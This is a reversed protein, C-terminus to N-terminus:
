RFDQLVSRWEILSAILVTGNKRQELQMWGAGLFRLWKPPQGIERRISLV